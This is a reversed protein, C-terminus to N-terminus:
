LSCTPLSRGKWITAVIAICVVLDRNGFRMNNCRGIFHWGGQRDWGAVYILDNQHHLLARLLKSVQTLMETHRHLCVTSAKGVWTDAAVDWKGNPPQQLEMHTGSPREIPCFRCSRSALWEGGNLVTCLFPNFKV